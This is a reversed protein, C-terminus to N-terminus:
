QKILKQIFQQKKSQNSITLVYQGAALKSVDILGNTYGEEKRLVLRGLADVIRIEIKTIGIMNGVEYTVWNTPVSPFAKKIFNNDNRIIDNVGTTISVANGIQAYFMGNGHTGIVLTNDNWRYAMTRVVAYKLMGSGEKVWATSNGALSTTSYLGVSTGVYYEVGTTKVVIECSQVSPVSVNGDCVTWTPTAATANSTFFISNAGYNSVVAMVSDHNRPNVAIDLVVSTATILGSSPALINTPATSAATNAPDGLRYINGNNTGIFLNNISVYGGRSTAMSMVKVNTGTITQGVGTMNTWSSSTVTTASTTRYITNDSAYYLNNTNDNDMHFYTVFLGEPVGTPKINTTLSNSGDNFLKVRYIEGSQSAGILYQRNSNNPDKSTLAVAAGDGGILKWQDNAGNTAGLFSLLGAGDRLTTSNDQTGGAFNLVNLTPDIAVHYYQHTQYNNNLDTWNITAATCNTTKQLGGDNAVFLENPNSPNFAAYHFDPHSFGTFSTSSYGGTFTNNNATSFGDSSRYLNTGVLFVLNADNPKIAIGLDYGGQTGFPTATTNRNATLNASLDTWTNTSRDGKFLDVSTGSELNNYYAAYLINQNSPAIALVIRQWGNLPNPNTATPPIYDNWGAPLNGVSGAIRTWNTGLSAQFDVNGTTSEWIGVLNPDPNGGNFAAYIKQGNPSIAIETQGAGSTAGVASGLVVDFSTGGNTSRVIRRHGAIYVHGTTPHVVIRHVLDLTNDFVEESGQALVTQAADNNRVTPNSRTWTLGNDTSKFLGNGLIFGASIGASAGNYEAGGAYWTDQFGARPDQAIASIAHLENEPHVWTWTTGGDASRYIGGNVGAAILIRNTTGNYRIDPIFARTRGGEATPGCALYTNQNTTRALGDGNRSPINKVAEYELRRIGAPIRGTAPDQLIMHEFAYRKAGGENENEEDYVQISVNQTSKTAIKKYTFFAAGGLLTFIIVPTFNKRNM